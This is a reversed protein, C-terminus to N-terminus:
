HQSELAQKARAVKELIESASKTWTFPKPAANHKELYQLIASKFEDVSKFIGGVRATKEAPDINQYGFSVTESM